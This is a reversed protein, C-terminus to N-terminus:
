VDSVDGEVTVRWRKWTQRFGDSNRTGQLDMYVKPKVDGQGPLLNAQAAVLKRVIVGSAAAAADVTLVALVEGHNLDSRIQCLWTWGSMDLLAGTDSNTFTDTWTRSDGRILVEAELKPIAAM